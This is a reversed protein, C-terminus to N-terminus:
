RCWRDASREPPTYGKPSEVVGNRSLMRVASNNSVKTNVIVDGNTHNLVYASIDWKMERNGMPWTLNILDSVASSVRSLAADIQGDRDTSMARAIFVITTFDSTTLLLLMGTTLLNNIIVM